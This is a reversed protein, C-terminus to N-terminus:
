RRRAVSYREALSREVEDAALLRQRDDTFRMFVERPIAHPASRLARDVRRIRVGRTFPTFRERAKLRQRAHFVRIEQEMTGPEYYSIRQRGDAYTEADMTVVIM